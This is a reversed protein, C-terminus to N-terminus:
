FSFYLGQWPSAAWPQCRAAWEEAAELVQTPSFTTDVQNDTSPNLFRQSQILVLKLTPGCNAFVLITNCLKFRILNSPHQTHTCLIFHVPSYLKFQLAGGVRGWGILWFSGGAYVLCSEFGKRFMPVYQGIESTRFGLSFVFDSFIPLTGKALRFRVFIM